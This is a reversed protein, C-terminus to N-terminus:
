RLNQIADAYKEATSDSLGPATNVELVYCQNQKENWIIDVAGFDLGLAAVAALGLERLGAPEVVDNHAFVWGNDHNRILSDAESGNRKKKQQVDIVAGNFVHVRFEKKKKVYQTYLPLNPLTSAYGPGVITIGSGGQGNTTRAFIVSGKELWGQATKKSATYPVHSVGKEKLVKFTELKDSAILVNEPKNWWNINVEPGKYGWSLCWLGRRKVPPGRWVKKGLKETLANALLKASASGRKYPVIRVNM